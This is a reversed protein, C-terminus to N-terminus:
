KNLAIAFEIGTIVFILLCISVFMWIAKKMKVKDGGIGPWFYINFIVM